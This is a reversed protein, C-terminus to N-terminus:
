RRRAPALQRLSEIQRDILHADDDVAHAAAEARLRREAIVAAEGDRQRALRARGTRRVSVRGSSCISEPLRRRHALAYAEAPV